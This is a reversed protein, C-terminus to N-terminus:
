SRPDGSPHGPTAEMQEAWLRAFRVADEASACEHIGGFVPGRHFIVEHMGFARVGSFGPPWGGEPTWPQFGNSILFAAFGDAIEEAERGTARRSVFATLPTGSADFDMTFIQNLRDWGFVDAPHLAFSAPVRDNPPFMALEELQADGAPHAAVFARASSELAALTEPGSTSAILEVYWPGHAFFLANAGSYALATVDSANAGPRRQLSFVAFANRATGMDYVFWEFWPDGGGQPEFRRCRLSQFGSPLYLEAKGNIKESLTQADFQEAPGMPAFGDPVWAAFGDTGAPGGAANRSPSAASRWTREHHLFMAAAAAALLLLVISGAIRERRSPPLVAM